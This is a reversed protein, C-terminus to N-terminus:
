RLPLRLPCVLTRSQAGSGRARYYLQVKQCALIAQRLAAVIHPAITQHPGPRLAMGEAEALIELDPGIRRVADPRIMAKLKSSLTELRALPEVM